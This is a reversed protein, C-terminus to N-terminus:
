SINDRYKNKKKDSQNGRRQNELDITGRDNRASLKTKRQWKEKLKQTVDRTPQIKSHHRLLKIV